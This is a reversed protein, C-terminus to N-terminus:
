LIGHLSKEQSKKKRNTQQMLNDMEKELNPSNEVITETFLNKRPARLKARPEKKPEKHKQM